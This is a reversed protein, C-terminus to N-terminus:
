AAHAPWEVRVTCGGGPVATIAGPIGLEVDPEVLASETADALDIM